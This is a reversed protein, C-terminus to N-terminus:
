GRYGGAMAIISVPALTGAGTLSNPTVAYTQWINPSAYYLIDLDNDGWVVGDVAPPVPNLEVALTTSGPTFGTHSATLTGTGVTAPAVVGTISFTGTVPDVTVTSPGSWGAPYTLNLTAPLPTGADPTVKGTITGYTMGPGVIYQPYDFTITGGAAHSAAAYPAAAVALVVPVSWAATRTVARRTIGGSQGVLEHPGDGKLSSLDKPDSM